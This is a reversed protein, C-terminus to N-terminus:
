SSMKHLSALGSALRLTIPNAAMRGCLAPYRRQLWGAGVEHLWVITVVM